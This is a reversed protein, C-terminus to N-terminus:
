EGCEEKILGSELLEEVLWKVKVDETITTYPLGFERHIENLERNRENVSENVGVIIETLRKRLDNRAEEKALLEQCISDQEYKNM